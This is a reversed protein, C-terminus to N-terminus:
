VTMHTGGFINITLDLITIMKPACVLLFRTWILGGRRHDYGLFHMFLDIQNAGPLVRPTGMSPAGGTALWISKNICKKPALRLPRTALLTSKSVIEELSMIWQKQFTDKQYISKSSCRVVYWEFLTSTGM